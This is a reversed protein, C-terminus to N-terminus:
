SLGMDLGLYRGEPRWTLAETGALARFRTRLAQWAAEDYYQTYPDQLADLMGRIAADRLAEGSTGGVHLEEIYAYVENLQEAPTAASAFAPLPLAIAATLAAIGSWRRWAGTVYLKM